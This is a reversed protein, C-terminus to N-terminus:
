GTGLAAVAIAHRRAATQLMGAASSRRDERAFDTENTLLERAIGFLLQSVADFENAASALAIALSEETGSDFIREARDTLASAAFGRAEAFSLLFQRFAAPDAVGARLDNEWITFVDNGRAAEFYEFDGRLAACANALFEGLAPELFNAIKDSLVFGFADTDASQIYEVATFWGCARGEHTRGDAFYHHERKGIINCFGRMRPPSYVSVPAASALARETLVLIEAPTDAAKCHYGVRSIAVPIAANWNYYDWSLANPAMRSASPYFHRFALSSSAAIEYAPRADGHAALAAALAAVTSDYCDPFEYQLFQM